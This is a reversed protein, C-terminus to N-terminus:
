RARLPLRRGARLGRCLGGGYNTTGDLPDVIWHLGSSTYADPSLEEGVVTSDPFAAVLQGAIREEAGRDVATVFDARAKRDWAAPDPRPAERIFRAAAGAAQVAVELLEQHQAM